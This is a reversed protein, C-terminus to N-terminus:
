IRHTSGSPDLTRKAGHAIARRVVVVLGAVSAWQIATLGLAIPVGPKIADVVLRFALYIGVFLNFLDGRPLRRELRLLPWVLAAMLLLEYLATPHRRIGDGFDIAWPLTTALGHTGDPLGSLFCGIRGIAIGVAMPVVFLDGTAERIGLRRKEIEVAVWGGLLGGVLTKGGLAGEGGELWHLIRSGIVAGVAAATVVSWRLGDDLHDGRARRRRLYLTFGVVYALVEFVLHPHMRWPGISIWVPFNM